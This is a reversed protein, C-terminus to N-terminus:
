SSRIAELVARIDQNVPCGIVCRGCGVCAIQGFNDVFYSFKHMLRQRMREKGSPRPNHGSAHLTFLSFQCTDWNRLRRGEDGVTEDVIDFCHCTPCSYSCVGCGLCKQHLEDWFTSDYMEDLKDKVGEVRPGKVEQNARETIEQKVALDGAQPEQLNSSLKVLDEGRQTLVDVLYRDGLDTLLLDLGEVGFPGGGVATCFCTSRPHDCGLGVLVTNDRRATYSPDASDADRFVCDLLNLSRADCPRLGFVVSRDEPLPVAAAEGGRFVLLTESRPLFIEKPPRVSNSFALVGETGDRLPEFNLMGDREAPAYVRHTKLLDDLFGPLASKVIIWSRM